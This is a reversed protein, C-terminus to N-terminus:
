RRLLRGGRRTGDREDVRRRAVRGRGSPSVGRRRGRRGRVEGADDSSVGGRARGAVREREREREREISGTRGRANAACANEPDARRPGGGWGEVAARRLEEPTARSGRGRPVVVGSAFSDAFSYVDRRVDDVERTEAEDDDTDEDARAAGLARRPSDSPPTEITRASWCPSPCPTHRPHTM